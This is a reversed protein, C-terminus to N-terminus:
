SKCAWGALYDPYDLLVRATPVPEHTAVALFYDIFRIGEAIRRAHQYLEALRASLAEPQDLFHSFGLTSEHAVSNRAERADDLIQAVNSSTTLRSSLFSINRQLRRAFAAMALKVLAESSEFPVQERVELLSALAKCGSEFVSGLATARGVAAFFTDARQDSPLDLLFQEGNM